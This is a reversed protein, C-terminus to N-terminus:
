SSIYHIATHNTVQFAADWVATSPCLGGGATKNVIKSFTPLEGSTSVEGLDTGIGTGYTCSSGFLGFTVENSLATLTTKEGAAPQAKVRGLNVADVTTSCGSFALEEVNGLIEAKGTENGETIGVTLNAGTCTALTTGGTTTLRGTGLQSAEIAEIKKGAPCMNGVPGETCLENAKAPPPEAVYHFASHNTVQFAAEWKATSPCLGSGATKSITKSFSVSGSTGIEGLDTGTAGTGYTCSVGFLTTTWEAGISTVTTGGGGGAEFKVTGGTLTDFTTSCGSWGIEVEDAVIPSVGSGQTIGGIHLSAGSCTALTTGGTTKLNSSGVQSVELTTLLKGEPCMSEVAAETCLEDASATGAGAFAMLAAAAVAALGLIKLYRM